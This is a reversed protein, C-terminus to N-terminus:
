EEGIRLIRHLKRRWLLWTAIGLATLFGVALVLYIRGVALWDSRPIFPPIPLTDGLTIPLGPLTIQNLVVGLLTGLALGFLILVVQELVLMTYLQRAAMGISRLVAYVAERQRASLYFHTAFGVLSLITTIVYGFFTVSRLGLSMPDAKIIARTAAITHVDSIDPAIELAQAVTADVDAGDQLKLLLENPNVPRTKIDNLYNLLQDRQTILYGTELDDYLTPFYNVIGKIQFEIPESAVTARVIDGVQIDTINRFTQNVLAPMAGRVEEGGILSVRVVAGPDIYILQLGLRGRGARVFNLSYATTSEGTAYWVERIDDFGDAIITDGSSRDVVTLDDLALQMTASLFGGFNGQERRTRNAFWFSHLSLPYALESQAPVSGSFYRWGDAPYGGTESPLLKVQIMQGGATQLRAELGIRDLNSDGRLASFGTDEGDDPGSWVWVGLRLPQGPLPLVPHPTPGGRALEDLLAPMPQAAFDDRFTTLGGYTIPDIAWLDFRGFARGRAVSGTTRFATSSAAVLPMAQLSEMPLVFTSDLRVDSGTAYEARELESLDLTANIGTSLLGLSMALTLLLVLRAVHTPNRSTQWMALATPLGRGRAALAAGFRLVLPFIRLLITGTGLLLALPSLLLLWDIRAGGGSGIIGGYLRLRWLLILGGVLLFVDLYFRQWLPPRNERTVSQTHTVISRRLAPGVPLLLGSLCALTGIGAALWAAQSLTLNWSGQSVDRLPGLFGLARVLAAGLVPGSFFAVGSILLAEGTQIRFIQSGSAGRSRLVAFEREVQKVSLAAVMIVYYLALLVVEATLLLLPARVAESQAAFSALVDSLNTTIVPHTPTIDLLDFIFGDLRSRLLPIDAVSITAPNFLVNWYLEARGGPFYKEAIAFFQDAPVFANFQARWREDPHSRLPNLSGSWYPDRPNRPRVIGAIELWLEPEEASRNRSLPLRDGVQLDYANAMEEGIAVAITQEDVVPDGPFVGEVLETEGELAGDYSVNVRDTEVVNNEFWPFLWSTGAQPVVQDLYSAFRRQVVNNVQDNLAAYDASSSSASFVSIRLSRTLADGTTLTNRLGFEVVTNVLLPGSALLGTSLVVGLGLTVLIQWHFAARRLIFRLFNM